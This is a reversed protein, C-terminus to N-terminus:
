GAFPTEAIGRVGLGTIALVKGANPHTSVMRGSGSDRISTVYLTAMDPGGFAPCSPYDVPVDIVAAVKGDPAVRAIQGTRVLAVWLNGESDVTAGDPSSKLSKTDLFLRPAGVTTGDPDYDHVMIAQAMSDAFYMRDGKPSFCIANSIRIGDALQELTNPATLRHLAGIPDAHLGMGGCIYRGKRDMKGDNLRARDDPNALRAILDIASSPLHLRYFGDQLALILSQNPALGISGVASPTLWSTEKGSAPDLARVKRNVVDVWFLRQSQPDWVPSEGLMDAAVDLIDIKV